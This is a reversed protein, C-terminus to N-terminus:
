SESGKIWEKVQSPTRDRTINKYAVDAQELELLRDFLEPHKDILYKWESKRCNGCFWCGSRKSFEYVPSYLGYEKCLETAMDETYGYKDLLSIKNSSVLKELRKPEDAAIGVYQTIDDDLSNYFKHIPAVKLESNIICRFPIPFGRMRGKNKGRVGLRYFREVYNKESRLIIFPVKLEDEVWPKLTNYIFDIHEPLEGSINEDFMVEVFVVMDLPENHEKALLLTAVSDKGGSCSAIYKM